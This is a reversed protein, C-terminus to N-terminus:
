LARARKSGVSIAARGQRSGQAHLPVFEVAVTSVRAPNGEKLSRQKRRKM